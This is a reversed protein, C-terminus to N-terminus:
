FRNAISKEARKKREEKKRRQEDKKTVRMVSAGAPLNAASLPTSPTAREVDLPAYEVVFCPLVFEPRGIV